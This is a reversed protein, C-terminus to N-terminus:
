KIEDEPKGLKLKLRDVRKQKAKSNQTRKNIKKKSTKIMKMMMIKNIAKMRVIMKIMMKCIKGTETKERAKNMELITLANAKTM